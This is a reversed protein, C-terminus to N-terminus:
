FHHESWTGTIIENITTEDFWDFGFQHILDPYEGCTEYYVAAARELAAEEAMIPAYEHYVNEFAIEAAEKKNEM